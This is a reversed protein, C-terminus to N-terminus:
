QLAERMTKAKRTCVMRCPSGVPSEMRFWRDVKKQTIKM